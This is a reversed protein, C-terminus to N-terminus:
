SWFQAFLGHWTRIWLEPPTSPQHSRAYAIRQEKKPPTLMAHMASNFVPTIVAYSLQEAGSYLKAVRKWGALRMLDTEQGGNALLSHTFTHRFQHPHIHPLGACAARDEIMNSLCDATLRGNHGLWLWPLGRDPRQDRLRKYQDLAQATRHGFPCARRRGGKGTVEAVQLDMDLDEVGLNAIEPLRTGSDLLLMIIASDRRSRFDRRELSKLLTKIQEQGIVPPSQEAIKPPHLGAMPSATIEHEEACWRFCHQLSRYRNGAYGPAHEALIDAIQQELHERTISVKAVPMGKARLYAELQHVESSYVTITKQSRNRAKLSLVSSPLLDVNAPSTTGPTSRVRPM